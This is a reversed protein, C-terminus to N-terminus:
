HYLDLGEQYSQLNELSLKRELERLLQKSTRGYTQRQEITGKSAIANCKNLLEHQWNQM